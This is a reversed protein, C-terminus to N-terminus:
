IESAVLWTATTKKTPPRLRLPLHANLWLERVAADPWFLATYADIVADSTEEWSGYSREAVRNIIARVLGIQRLSLTEIM